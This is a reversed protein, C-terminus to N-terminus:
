ASTMRTEGHETRHVRLAVRPGAAWLTGLRAQDGSRSSQRHAPLSAPAPPPAYAVEGQSGTARHRQHQVTRRDNQHRIRCVVDVGVPTSTPKMLVGPRLRAEDPEANGRDAVHQDRAERGRHSVHDILSNRRRQQHEADRDRCAVVADNAPGEGDSAPDPRVPEVLQRVVHTLQVPRHRDCARGPEHEGDARSYRATVTHSLHDSGHHQRDEDRHHPGCAVSNPVPEVIAELQDVAIAPPGGQRDQHREHQTLENRRLRRAGPEGVDDVVRDPPQQRHQQQQRQHREHHM